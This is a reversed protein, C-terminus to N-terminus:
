SFLVTKRIMMSLSLLFLLLVDDNMLMVILTLEHDIALMVCDASTKPM